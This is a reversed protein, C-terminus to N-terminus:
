HGWNQRPKGKSQGLSVYDKAANETMLMVGEYGKIDTPNQHEWNKLWPYVYDCGPLYYHKALLLNSAPNHVLYMSM